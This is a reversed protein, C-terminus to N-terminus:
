MHEVVVLRPEGYERKFNLSGPIRLVRAPESVSEDVVDAVGKALRRLISQAGRYEAQLDLPVFVALEFDPMQALFATTRQPDHRRLFERHHGQRIAVHAQAIPQESGQEHRQALLPDRRAAGTRVIRAMSM